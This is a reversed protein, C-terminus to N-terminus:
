IRRAGGSSRSDASDIPPTSTDTAPSAATLVAQDGPRDQEARRRGSESRRAFSSRDIDSVIGAVPRIAVHGCNECVLRTLGNTTVELTSSHACTNGRRFRRLGLGM